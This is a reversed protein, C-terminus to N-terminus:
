SIVIIRSVLEATNKAELKKMLRARHTEVTRHSIGLKRAIEKCTLGNVIYTSIERERATLRVTSRLPADLREFSWVMLDFPDRPTLTVGQARAWFVEGNRDQMFREDAYSQSQRLWALCREGIARFDAMSPYLKLILQGQLEAAPYGFLGAFADNFKVMLRHHTIVQATPSVRFALQELEGASMHALSAGSLENLM